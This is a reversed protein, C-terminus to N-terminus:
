RRLARLKSVINDLSDHKSCRHCDRNSVVFLCWCTLHSDIIAHGFAKFENGSERAMLLIVILIFLLETDIFMDSINSGNKRRMSGSSSALTHLCCAWWM